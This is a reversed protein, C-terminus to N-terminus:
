PQEKDWNQAPLLPINPPKPLIMDQVEENTMKLGTVADFYVTTHLAMDSCVLACRGSPYRRITERGANYPVINDGVRELWEEVTEGGLRSYKLIYGLM